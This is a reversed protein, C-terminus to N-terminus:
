QQMRSLVVRRMHERKTQMSSGRELLFSLSEVEVQQAIFSVQNAGAIRLGLTYRTESMAQDPPDMLDRPIQREGKDEM